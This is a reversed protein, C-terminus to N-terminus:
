NSWRANRLVQGQVQDSTPDPKAIPIRALLSDRRVRDPKLFRQTGLCIRPSQTAFPPKISRWFRAEPHKGLLAFAVIREGAADPDIAKTGIHCPVM